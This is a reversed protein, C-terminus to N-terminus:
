MIRGLIMLPYYKKGRGGEKKVGGGLPPLSPPPGAADFIEEFGSIRGGVIGRRSKLYWIM